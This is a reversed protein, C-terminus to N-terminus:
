SRPIHSMLDPGLRRFVDIHDVMVRNEALKGDQVLWFDSFRM